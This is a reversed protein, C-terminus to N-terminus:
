KILDQCFDLWVRDFDAQARRVALAGDLIRESLQRSTNSVNKLNPDRKKGSVQAPIQLIKDFANFVQKARQLDNYDIASKNFYRLHNFRYVAFQRLFKCHNSM